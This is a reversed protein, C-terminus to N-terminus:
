IARTHKLVMKSFTDFNQMIFRGFLKEIFQSTLATSRTQTDSTVSVPVIALMRTKQGLFNILHGFNRTKELSKTDAM